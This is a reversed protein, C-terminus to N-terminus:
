LWKAKVLYTYVRDPNLEPTEFERVPGTSTTPKGNIVLEANAPLRVRIRAPLEQEPPENAAGPFNETYYGPQGSQTAAAGYTPRSKATATTATTAVTPASVPAYVPVYYDGAPVYYYYLVRRAPSQALSTSSVGALLGAACLVRFGWLIWITRM